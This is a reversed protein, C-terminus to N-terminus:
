SDLAALSECLRRTQARDPLGALAILDPALAEPAGVMLEALAARRARRVTERDSEELVSIAWEHIEASLQAHETEERAIVEMAARIAPDGAMHAQWTAVLAGFTERVCGEVANDICFDILARPAPMELRPPSLEVGYRAALAVMIRAHGIEDGAAQLAREVLELPAGFHELERAVTIFAPVSAAELYATQRIWAGTATSAAYEPCAHLGAPRRGGICGDPWSYTMHVETDPREILACQLFTVDGPWATGQEELITECLTLCSQDDERCDKVLDRYADSEPDIVAVQSEKPPEWGACCGTATMATAVPLAALVLTQLTTRLSRSLRPFRSM